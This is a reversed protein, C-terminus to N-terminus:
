HTPLWLWACMRRAAPWSRGHVLVALGREYAPRLPPLAGDGCCLSALVHALADIPGGVGPCEDQRLRQAILSHRPWSLALRRGAPPRGPHRAQGLTDHAVRACTALPTAGMVWGRKLFSMKTSVANSFRKWDIIRVIKRQFVQHQELFHRVLPPQLVIM